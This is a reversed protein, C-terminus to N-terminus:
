AKPGGPMEAWGKLKGHVLASSAWRWNEGDHFGEGVEDGQDCILVSQDSDPLGETHWTITETHGNQAARPEAYFCHTAGETIPKLQIQSEECGFAKAAARRAAFERGMTCTASVAKSTGIKASARYTGGSDSIRVLATDM